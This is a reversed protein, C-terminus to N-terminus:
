TKKETVFNGKKAFTECYTSKECNSNLLIIINLKLKVGKREKWKNM